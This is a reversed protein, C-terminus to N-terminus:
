RQIIFLNDNKFLEPFLKSLELMELRFELQKGVGICANKYVVEPISRYCTVVNEEISTEKSEDTDEIPTETSKLPAKLLVQRQRIKELNLLELKYYEKWLLPSTPNIRLGSQFIARSSDINGLHEFEWSASLIFFTVNTPHLLIARYILIEINSQKSQLCSDLPERVESKFPGLLTNCGSNFM